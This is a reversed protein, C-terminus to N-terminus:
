PKKHIKEIMQASPLCVSQSVKARGVETDRERKGDVAEPLDELSRGYAFRQLHIERATEFLNVSVLLPPLLVIDRWSREPALKHVPKQLTNQNRAKQVIQINDQVTQIGRM